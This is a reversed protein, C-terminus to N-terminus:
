CVLGLAISVLHVLLVIWFLRAVLVTEIRALLVHQQSRLARWVTIDLLVCMGEQGVWLAPAPLGERVITDRLV